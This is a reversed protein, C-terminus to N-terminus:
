EGMSTRWKDVALSFNDLDDKIPFKVLYNTIKKEESNLINFRATRENAKDLKFDKWLGANLLLRLTGDSRMILRGRKTEKHVNLKLHGVGREKWQPKEGEGELEFLRAKGCFEETEM